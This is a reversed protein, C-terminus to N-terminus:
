NLPYKWVYNSEHKSNSNSMKTTILSVFTYINLYNPPKEWWQQKVYSRAEM